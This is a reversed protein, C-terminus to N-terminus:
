HKPWPILGFRTRYRQLTSESVGLRRAVAREGGRGGAEIDAARTSLIEEPSLGADVPGPRGEDDPDESMLRAWYEEYELGQRLALRMKRLNEPTM